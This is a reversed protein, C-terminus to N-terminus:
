DEKEALLLFNNPFSIHEDINIFGAEELQKKVEKPEYRIDLSPGKGTDEKKWDSVAIKGGPKLLRYCEKLTKEPSDLEHHLNVTFLFDAMEDDIPVQNDEMKMPVINDYDPLINDIMWDVMIESIDCAYVKCEPFKEAFQASFFGTGAGLDIMVEPNNLEAYKILENPPFDKIREPNNLRELNQPNFRKEEM